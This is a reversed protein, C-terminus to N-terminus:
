VTLVLPLHQANTLSSRVNIPVSDHSRNQLKTGSAVSLQVFLFSLFKQLLDHLLSPKWVHNSDRISGQEWKGKFQLSLASGVVFSSFVSVSQGHHDNTIVISLDTIVMVVSNVAVHIQILIWLIIEALILEIKAVRGERVTWEHHRRVLNLTAFFDRFFM